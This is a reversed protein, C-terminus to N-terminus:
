RNQGARAPDQKAINQLGNKEARYLCSPRPIHPPVSAPLPSLRFQSKGGLEVHLDWDDAKRYLRLEFTRFNMCAIYSSECNNQLEDSRLLLSSPGRDLLGYSFSPLHVFTERFHSHYTRTVNRFPLPSLSPLSRLPSLGKDFLPSLKDSPCFSSKRKRRVEGGVPKFSEFFAHFMQLALRSARLVKNGRGKCRKKRGKQQSLVVAVVMLAHVIRSHQGRRLPPPLLAATSAM